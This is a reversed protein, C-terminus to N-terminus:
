QKSRTIIFQGQPLNYDPWVALQFVKAKKFSTKETVCKKCVKKNKLQLMCTLKNRGDCMSMVASLLIKVDNVSKETMNLAKISFQLDLPFDVAPSNTLRIDTSACLSICIIVYM